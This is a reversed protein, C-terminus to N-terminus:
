NRDCADLKHMADSLTLEFELSKTNFEPVRRESCSKRRGRGDRQASESLKCWLGIALLVSKLESPKQVDAEDTMSRTIPRKEILAAGFTGSGETEEIHGATELMVYGRLLSDM